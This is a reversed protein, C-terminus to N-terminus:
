CYGLLELLQRIEKKTHPPPLVIFGAVRESDLKKKGKSIWHGLYKVEPETFQLKSKSVKWGRDGLFNLLTITSERMDEEKPGAVLLDDVYQLLKTGKVPM